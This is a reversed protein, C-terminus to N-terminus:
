KDFSSNFSSNFSGKGGDEIVDIDESNYTISRLTAWIPENLEIVNYIVQVLSESIPASGTLIVDYFGSLAGRSDFRREASDFRLTPHDFGNSSTGEIIEVTEFGLMRFFQVYATITGKINYLKYMLPIIKRRFYNDTYIPLHLGIKEEEYILYSEKLTFPDVLNEIFNNILDLENEDLDGALLENFRQSLGKNNSDKFLDDRKAARGFLNFIIDKLVFSM